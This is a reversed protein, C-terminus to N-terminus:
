SVPARNTKKAIVSLVTRAARVSPAPGESRLKALAAACGDLQARRAEPDRLLRGVQKALLDPRCREQLMEPIIARDMVLNILSAFRIHVLFHRLLFATIPNVKYAIVMPCRALALELSITGSAALAVDAAAFADYKEAVGRIVVTPAPWGAAADMVKEAVTGITAVVVRLAPFEDKLHQLTRAFVPLLRSTEAHRSGPLVALLPADVPIGHRARFSPGDGKDAGEELVPHGVFTTPLGEKEFYAPEFPWLTMLHDLFKVVVRAKWPRWAWVMPAVYHILPIDAALREAKIRKEVRFCFGAADISVVASPRLERIREVTERVRRLIRSAKPLVEALGMVSLEEMPFQSALGEIIMREGGIGAFRVTGNTERKLAAMLRAGLADGSPEGAMLFILPGQTLSGQVQSAESIGEQAHSACAAATGKAAEPVKVGIVFLGAADAAAVVAERDIVLAAGAEIAIGRLGAAKANGVTRVGITPLDIRAEQGPKKVKVLVGGPGERRLHGARAIMADTGDIAEVALVVGQQVIAGQGQDKRGIAHAAMIGHAIDREAAEDPIVNGYIGEGALLTEDITEVGVVRLGLREAWRAVARLFGDDGLVARREKLLFRIALGDPIGIRCIDHLNRPRRVSGAFVVNGVGHARMLEVAQGPAGLRVWVHPAAAVRAEEAHGKIAVVFVEREKERCAKILRAPLEGGGAVIGIKNSM